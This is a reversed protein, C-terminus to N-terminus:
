KDILIPIIQCGLSQKFCDETSLESTPKGRVQERVGRIGRKVNRSTDARSGMNEQDRLSRVSPPM